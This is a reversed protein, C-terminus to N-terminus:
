PSFIYTRKATSIPICYKIILSARFLADVPSVIRSLYLEVASIPHKPEFCSNVTRTKNSTMLDM